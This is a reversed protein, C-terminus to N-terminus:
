QMLDNISAGILVPLSLYLVKKIYEDKLDFIFKYRYGSKKAEPIQILLQSFVAVVSVAM